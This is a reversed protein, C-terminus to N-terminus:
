KSIDKAYVSKQETTITPVVGQKSVTRQGKTVVSQVDDYDEPGGEGESVSEQGETSTPQKNM